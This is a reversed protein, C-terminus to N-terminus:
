ISKGWGGKGRLFWKVGSKTQKRKGVPRSGAAGCPKVPDCGRETMWKSQYPTRWTSCTCLQTSMIKVVPQLPIEARTGPGGRRGAEASVKTDASSNRVYIRVGIEPQQEAAIKKKGRRLLSANGGISIPEAKALSLQTKSSEPM